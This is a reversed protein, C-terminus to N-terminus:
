ANERKKALFADIARITEFNDPVVEEDEIKVNFEEQLFMILRLLALSDLIGSTILSQESPIGDPGQHFMLENSIFERIRQEVSM